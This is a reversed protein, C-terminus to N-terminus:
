TTLASLLLIININIIRFTTLRVNDAYPASDSAGYRNIHVQLDGTFPGRLQM